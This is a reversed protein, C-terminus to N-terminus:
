KDLDKRKISMLNPYYVSGFTTYLDPEWDDGLGLFELVKEEGWTTHLVNATASAEDADGETKLGFTVGLELSQDLELVNTLYEWEDPDDESIAVAATYTYTEEGCETFMNQLIKLTGDQVLKRVIEKQEDTFAPAPLTIHLGWGTKSNVYEMYQIMRADTVTLPQIFPEIIESEGLREKWESGYTDKLEEIDAVFFQQTTCTADSINGGLTPDEWWYTYASGEPYAKFSDVGVLPGNCLDWFNWFLNDTNADELCSVIHSASM